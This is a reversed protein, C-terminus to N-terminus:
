AEGGPLEILPPNLNLPKEGYYRQALAPDGGAIDRVFCPGCCDTFEDVSCGIDEAADRLSEPTYAGDPLQHQQCTPCIGKLLCEMETLEAM